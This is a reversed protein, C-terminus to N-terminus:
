TMRRTTHILSRLRRTADWGPRVWRMYRSVRRTITSTLSSERAEAAALMEAAAISM